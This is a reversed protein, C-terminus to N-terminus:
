NVRLATGTSEAVIREYVDASTTRAGLRVTKNTGHYDSSGTVALGLEAALVLLEARETETHDTHDAELGFLGAGALEVILSDPVVTGRKSARPHAFVPVGGAGRVMRVADFVELAEKPLRWRKGLYQDQFAEDVTSVVGEAVLARALHPRGVAGGGALELVQQWTIGVGDARVLDVMREARRERDTILGSMAASLGPDAPDFLYALLHLEIGEWHCSLEAGPVLTLGPPLAKSAEAWGGTTDHDTLAVVSLGAEAAERMLEAPQSTGDSVTSHTHLDILM